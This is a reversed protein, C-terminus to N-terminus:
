NSGERLDLQKSLSHSHPLLHRQQRTETAGFIDIDLRSFLNDLYSQKYINKNKDNKDTKDPVALGDVNEFLTRITNNAKGFLTDGHVPINSLECWKRSPRTQENTRYHYQNELLLESKPGTM